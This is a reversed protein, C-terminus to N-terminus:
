EDDKIGGKMGDCVSKWCEFWYKVKDKLKGKCVLMKIPSEIFQILLVVVFMYSLWFISILLNIINGITNGCKKLIYKECKIDDYKDRLINTIGLIISETYKMKEKEIWECLKIIVVIVIPLLVIIFFMISGQVSVESGFFATAFNKYIESM